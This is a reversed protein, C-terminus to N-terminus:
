CRGGPPFPSAAPPASSFSRPGPFGAWCSASLDQSWSTRGSGGAWRSADGARLLCGSDSGPSVAVWLSARSHWRPNRASGQPVQPRHCGSDPLACSRPRPELVHQVQTGTSSAPQDWTPSQLQARVQAVWLPPAPAETGAETIVPGVTGVGRGLDM